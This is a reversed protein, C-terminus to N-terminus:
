FDAFFNKIQNALDDLSFVVNIDPRSLSLQKVVDFKRAYNPHCGVFVYRCTSTYKGLEYLTIPCLTEEPFWFMIATSYSLYQHEWEIQIDSEEPNSIDFNERRPNYLVCDADSLGEIIDNQWNPCNTIGGGLFLSIEQDSRYHNPATILKMKTKFSAFLYIGPFNGPELMVEM